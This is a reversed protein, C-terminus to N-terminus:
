VEFEKLISLKKAISPQIVAASWQNEEFFMQMLSLLKSQSVENVGAELEDISAYRGIHLQQEALRLCRKETSDLNIKVGGLINQKIRNLDSNSIGNKLFNQIEKQVLLVAKELRSPKTALSVGWSFADQYLDAVSYVSYALGYDERIKQFLRSSMGSGMLVNFISFSYRFDSPLLHNPTSTGLYLSSQSLENKVITKYSRGAQYSIPLVLTGKEKKQFFVEVKQLLAHHDINGAACIYIPLDETVQNKYTLLAEKRLAKVSKLTGAVPFALASGNFHIENFLDGVREEAIDDYNKIEELIVKREKEIDEETFVSNMLLDAVIELALFANEQNVLAYFGTEQRTTYADLFGGVDELACVLELTSRTETGKFVLHEYFHSLGNTEITEHRSGRPIWAGITVSNANEMFDTVVTVGNKLPTTQVFQNLM